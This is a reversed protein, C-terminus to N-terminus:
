SIPFPMVADSGGIPFIQRLRWRNTTDLLLRVELEMTETTIILTATTAGAATVPEGDQIEIIKDIDYPFGTADLREDLAAPGFGHEVGGFQELASLPLLAQRQSAAALLLYISLHDGKAVLRSITAVTAEPTDAPLLQIWGDFSTLETPGNPLAPNGSFPFENMGGNAYRIQRVRWDGAQSRGMEIIATLGTARMTVDILAARSDEVTTVIESAGKTLDFRLGGATAASQMALDFMRMADIYHDGGIEATLRAVLASHGAGDVWDYFTEDDMAQQMAQQTAPHFILAATIFDGDAFAGIFANVALEPTSLDLEGYSVPLLGGSHTEPEDSGCGLAFLSCIILM